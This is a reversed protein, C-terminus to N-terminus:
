GLERKYLPSNKLSLFRRMSRLNLNSSPSDTGKSRAYKKVEDHSAIAHMRRWTSLKKLRRPLADFAYRRGKHSKEPVIRVHKIETLKGFRNAM